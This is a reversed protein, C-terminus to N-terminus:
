ERDPLLRGFHGDNEGSWSTRRFETPTQGTVKKIMRSLHYVSKFGTEDAIEGLTFGTNSLLELAHNVRVQWLYRMPTVGESHRFLRILYESSVNSMEALQELNLPKAYNTHIEEKTKILSPHKGAGSRERQSESQYLMVAAVALTCRLDKQSHDAASRTLTQLIDTLHNMEDSLPLCRPLSELMNLMEPCSDHLKIHVWRHRTEMHKAFFFEERHGPHLLAVHGAPVFSVEDDIHIYVNGTHVLVFQLNPQIRPGWRGGPPYITQGATTDEIISLLQRNDERINM